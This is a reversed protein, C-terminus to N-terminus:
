LLVTGQRQELLSLMDSRNQIRGIIIKKIHNSQRKYCADLKARMGGRLVHTDVLKHYHSRDLTRIIEKHKSYVGDVDTVFILARAALADAIAVAGTDANVNYVSGDDTSGLPAVVPVYHPCLELLLRPNCTAARATFNSQATHVTSGTATSGTATSGAATSDATGMADTAASAAASAAARATHVASATTTINATNEAVMGSTSGTATSGMAGITASATTTGPTHTTDIAGGMKGLPDMKEAKLTRGSLASIGVAAINHAQLVRVLQSNVSGALVMEVIQMEAATTIRLGDLFTPTIGLRASMNSIQTGGGHVIVLPIRNERHLTACEAACLQLYHPDNIVEGGIKVVIPTVM